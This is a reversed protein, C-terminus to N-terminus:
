FPALSSNWQASDPGPMFVAMADGRLSLVDTDGVRALQGMVWTCLKSGLARWFAVSIVTISKFPSGGVKEDRPTQCEQVCSSVDEM